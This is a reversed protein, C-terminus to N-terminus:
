KQPFKPKWKPKNKEECEEKEDQAELAADIAAICAAGGVIGGIVTEVAAAAGLCICYAQVIARKHRRKEKACPDDANACTEPDPDGCMDAETLGDPDIYRLPSNKVFMFANISREKSLAGPLFRKAQFVMSATDGIPDATLWRQWTPAYPRYHYSITGSNAHWERTSFRYVNVPGLSGSAALTSGFPDYLYKAVPVQQTNILMAINGNGDAHYYAHSASPQLNFTSHDTRALLGGIGGAGELSGSLDKGRTYTVQALNNQDREQIVLNGDYIYRVENTLVWASSKWSYEKRVRRRMKGDYTFESKWANTATIRILQNEDDYVFAKQGDFLMNGNLDYTFSPTSPLYASIAHADSRGLADQANATYTNTGNAPTHNTSAFTHDAYRIANSTNVTVNTAAATTTGVVTLTGSRAGNTIQNLANLNFVQLYANNTRNTLNGTADYAYGFQENLRNTTGGSEKGIATKLQSISDYSYEVYDGGTRTQRTRQNGSNVIYGHANLIAHSSNKLTTNTLRALNDYANTIYAGNPLGLNLHLPSNQAITAGSAPYTYSFAGAPSTIPTLRKASDYGYSQAWPSANPQDLSLSSRLRNNYAYTVADNAWPGDESALLGANNFTYSTPGVADVMNTLRNLADYALSLDTSVEYNVGTLNGAADYAYFTNTKAPTWRNTLRNNADYKYVFINTGVHDQKNTMRGYQDYKWTTVQNKGDTLTLLDSPGSYTFRVEELNANTEVTKRGLADYGHRTVKSLHNTYAIMGKASYAFREVGGDPYTRSILRDLDDYAMAVSIGSADVHNTAHDEVDYITSQIRGFANSSALLLGQNSYWNTVNLGASDTVKTLRGLLDYTKNVTLSGGPHVIETVRGVNDYTYSTTNGLPDVVSDLAGCACYNYTNTFGRANIDRIKQRVSNYEARNTFGMRDIAQVLDLKDYTYQVSTNDPFDRRTLRQLNDWTNTITLGRPDTHTRVLGNTWTYSNTRISTGGDKDITTSLYGDSGYTNTTLLGTPRSVSTVRNSGDYTYITQEGLANWNTLVQHNANFFNSSVQTGAPNIHRILDIGNAAYIYINTHVGVTGDARTYTTIVNTANGFENYERRKFWTTGDPLVRAVFLPRLQDGPSPVTYMDWDNFPNVELGPQTNSARKRAHDYWTKQGETTGDPSPARELCMTGGLIQHGDEDDNRSKLWHRLRALKYDTLTLNTLVGSELYNPSLRSHQLPGWYFSNANTMEINCFTNTFSFNANTTSPVDAYFGPLFDEGSDPGLKTSEARYLHLHKGGNPETIEIARNVYNSARMEGQGASFPDEYINFRTTGYPTVMNTLWERGNSTDYTFSTSIGVVDTINTLLGSGDYLFSVTRGYPDTIATVHNTYTANTYSLTNTGGTADVVYQLRFVDSPTNTDYLFRNTRGAPDVKASLFAPFRGAAYRIEGYIDKAGNSHQLEFSVTTGGANTHRLLKTRTEYDYNIWGDADGDDLTDHFKVHGGGGFCVIVGPYNDDWDTDAPAEIFSKWSSYWNTGHSFFNPNRELDDFPNNWYNYLWDHQYNMKLSVRPGKAPQYALPEDRLWLTIGPEMVWWKPMGPM